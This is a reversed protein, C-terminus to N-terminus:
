LNGYSIIEDDDTTICIDNSKSIEQAKLITHFILPLEQIIVKNKQPIGKSNKRAPIIFLIESSKQKSSNLKSIIVL